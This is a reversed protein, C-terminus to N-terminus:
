DSPEPPTARLSTQHVSLRVDFAANDSRLGFPGQLQLAEPPLRGSWTLAGDIWLDLRDGRIEAAMHRPQGEVIPALAPLAFDPALTVYGADHCQAHTSQGPNTKVSVHVGQSPAIHWMAYIVNCTDQARLKLGIQRRLEGSALAVRERTPGRYVFSLELAVADRRALVARTMASRLRLESAPLAEIQGSQVELDAPTM